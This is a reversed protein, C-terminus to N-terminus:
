CCFLKVEWPEPVKQNMFSIYINEADKSIMIEGKLARVLESISNHILSLLRDYRDIEQVLVTNM